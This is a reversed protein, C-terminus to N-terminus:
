AGACPMAAFLILAALLGVIPWFIACWHHRVEDIIQEGESVLLHRSVQPDFFRMLLGAAM